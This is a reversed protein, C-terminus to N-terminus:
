ALPSIAFTWPKKYKASVRLKMNMKEISETDMNTKNSMDMGMDISNKRPYFLFGVDLNRKSRVEVYIKGTELAILKGLASQKKRLKEGIQRVIEGRVPAPTEAWQAKAAQM